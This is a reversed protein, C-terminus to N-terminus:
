QLLSGLMMCRARFCLILGMAIFGGGICRKSVLTVNLNPYEFTTLGIAVFAGALFAGLTGPPVTQTISSIVGSVVQLSVPSPTTAEAGPRLLIM